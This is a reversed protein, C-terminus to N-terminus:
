TYYSEVTVEHDNTVASKSQMCKGELALASLKGNEVTAIKKTTPSLNQSKRLNMAIFRHIISRFDPVKGPKELGRKGRLGLWYTPLGPKGHKQGCEQHLPQLSDLCGM